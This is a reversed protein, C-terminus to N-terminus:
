LEEVSKIVYRTSPAGEKTYDEIDINYDEAMQKYDVSKRGPVKTVNHEYGNYVVAGRDALVPRIAEDVAKIRDEIRKKAMHLEAREELLPKINDLSSAAQQKTRTM